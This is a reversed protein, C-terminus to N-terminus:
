TTAAPQTPAASAEVPATPAVPTSGEVTAVAKAELAEIRSVLDKLATLLLDGQTPHFWAILEDFM